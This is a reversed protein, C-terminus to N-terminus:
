AAAALVPEAAVNTNEMLDEMLVDLLPRGYFGRTYLIVNDKKLQRFEQQRLEKSKVALTLEDSTLRKSVVEQWERLFDKAQEIDAEQRDFM